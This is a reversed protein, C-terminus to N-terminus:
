KKRDSLQELHIFVNVIPQEPIRSRRHQQRRRTCRSIIRALITLYRFFYIELCFPVQPVQVNGVAERISKQDSFIAVKVRLITSEASTLSHYCVKDSVLHDYPKVDALAKVVSLNIM